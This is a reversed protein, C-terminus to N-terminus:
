ALPNAAISRAAAHMMETNPAVAAHRKFKEIAAADIRISRPGLRLAPLAGSAVLRRVTSPHLSLHRAAQSVTWLATAAEASRTHSPM